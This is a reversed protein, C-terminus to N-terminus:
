DGGLLGSMTKYPTKHRMRKRIDMIDVTYELIKSMTKAKGRNEVSFYIENKIFKYTPTHNKDYGTFKWRGFNSERKGVDNMITKRVKNRLDHEIQDPSLNTKYRTNLELRISTGETTRENTHAFIEYDYRVPTNSGKCYRGKADRNTYYYGRLKKGRYLEIGAM